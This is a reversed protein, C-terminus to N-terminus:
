PSPVTKTSKLKASIVQYLFNLVNVTALSIFVSYDVEIFSLYYYLLAAAVGFVVQESKKVPSTKPEILMFGALFYITGTTFIFKFYEFESIGLTLLGYTLLFAFFCYYKRWSKLGFACWILLIIFTLPENFSTGWWSVFPSSELFLKAFFIGFLIAFVTPNM